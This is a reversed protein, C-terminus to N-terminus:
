VKFWNPKNQKWTAMYAKDGIYYKRYATVSDGCHYEEPMCQPPEQWETNKLGKPFKSLYERLVGETKHVKGYRETYESCLAIAHNYLWDYHQKNQRVWINSPHNAHTKKYMGDVASGLEHHATSLMQASELIMKVVHKDCLSRAAVLPDTHVYFINM